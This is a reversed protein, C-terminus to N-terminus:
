RSAACRQPAVTRLDPHARGTRGAYTRWAYLTLNNDQSRDLWDTQYGVTKLLDEVDDPKIGTEPLYDVEMVINAIRAFDKAAIGKLVEMFYGEVDIKLIDIAALRNSEMEASVTSSTVEHTVLQRDAAAQAIWNVTGTDLLTSIGSISTSQHLVLKQGSTSAVACNVASVRTAQGDILRTVNDELYVFTRPSAEYCYIAAPQYRRQAWITYIEINAGVDMITPRHAIKMEPHHYIQSVFVEDYIYQTDADYDDIVALELGGFTKRKMADNVSIQATHRLSSARLRLPPGPSGSLSRLGCRRGRLGSRASRDRTWIPRCGTAFFVRCGEADVQAGRRVVPPGYPVDVPAEYYGPPPGYRGQRYPDYMDAAIALDSLNLAAGEIALTLLGFCKKATLSVLPM